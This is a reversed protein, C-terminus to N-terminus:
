AARRYTKIVGGLRERCVVDELRITEWKPEPSPDCPPRHNRNSHPRSENYHEVFESVLHNLHDQGFAIFHDLCETKITQVFREVRANLNPSRVPLKKCEVGAEKLTARFEASFKTDRDHILQAPRHERSETQEIFERARETVWASNPQRTCQTIIVERSELHMFVLVFLDVIGRATVARKTFFDCAWLTDAHAKLYDDWTGRSRKPSPEINKEKLINKVTQRCIRSIGLSRLEGLIKTYGFGTERAIKIVLERLAQSKGHSKRVAPNSRKAERRWRYFTGPTVISILETIGPGLPLGFKLLRQREEPLTHVQGPIRARLIQNEEKLYRVQRRLQSDTASAILALLPHFLKTV